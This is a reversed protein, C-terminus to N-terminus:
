WQTQVCHFVELYHCSLCFNIKSPPVVATEHDVTLCQNSPEMTDCAGKQEVMRLSYSGYLQWLELWWTLMGPLVFYHPFPYFVKGREKFSLFGPLEMYCKIKRMMPLFNLWIIEEWSRRGKIRPPPQNASHIAAKLHFWLKTVLSHSVISTLTPGSKALM